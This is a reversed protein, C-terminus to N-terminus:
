RTELEAALLGRVYVTMPPAQPDRADYMLFQGDLTVQLGGEIRDFVAMVAFPQLHKSDGDLRIGEPTDIREGSPAHYRWEVAEIAAPDDTRLDMVFYYSHGLYTQGPPTKPDDSFVAYVISPRSQELRIRARPFEFPRGNILLRSVSPLTAPAIAQLAREAPRTSPSRQTTSAHKSKRPEGCGHLALPSLIAVSLVLVVAMAAFAIRM